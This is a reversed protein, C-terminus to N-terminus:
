TLHACYITQTIENLIICPHQLIKVIYLSLWLNDKGHRFLVVSSGVQSACQQRKTKIVRQLDYEVSLKPAIRCSLSEHRLYSAYEVPWDPAIKSCTFHSIKGTQIFNWFFFLNWSFFVNQFWNNQFSQIPKLKTNCGTQVIIVSKQIDKPQQVRFNWISM